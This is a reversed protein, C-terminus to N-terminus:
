DDNDVKVKRRNKIQEMLAKTEEDLEDDDDSSTTQLKQPKVEENKSKKVFTTNDDSDDSDESVKVSKSASKMKALQQEAEQEDSSGDDSDIDLNELDATLWEQIKDLGPNKPLISQLDVINEEVYEIVDASLDTPKRTFRSTSYDAMTKKNVTAGKTKVIKYNIGGKYAFHAPADEDFDSLQTLIRDFVKKTLSIFKIKGEASEDGSALPDKVILVQAIYEKKAWYKVGNAEDNKKYFAGSVKCIPCESIGYMNVCPVRKEQGNITLTHTKKEIAFKYVNDENKDPLFRIEVEREFEMDFFRYFKDSLENGGKARTSNIKALLDKISPTKTM